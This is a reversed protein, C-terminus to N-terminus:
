FGGGKAYLAITTTVGIVILVLLINDMVWNMKPFDNASSALDSDSRIEEYTNSLVMGVMFTVFLLIVSAIFFIPHTDIMFSSVLLLVWFLVLFFVFANDMYSPYQTTVNNSMAKAEDSLDDSAQIDTNLDGLVKNGIVWSIALVFLIVVLILIDLAVQGKSSVGCGEVDFRIRM